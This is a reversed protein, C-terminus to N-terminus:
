KIHIFILFIVNLLRLLLVKVIYFIELANSHSFIAAFSEPKIMDHILEDNESFLSEEEDDGGDISNSTEIVEKDISDENSDENGDGYRNVM